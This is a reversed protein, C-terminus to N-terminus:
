FTYVCMSKMNTTSPRLILDGFYLKNDNKHKESVASSKTKIPIFSTPNSTSTKPVAM